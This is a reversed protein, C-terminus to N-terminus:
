QRQNDTPPWKGKKSLENVASVPDSPGLRMICSGSSSCCCSGRTPADLTAMFDFTGWDSRYLRYASWNTSSAVPVSHCGDMIAEASRGSNPRLLYDRDEHIHIATQCILSSTLFRCSYSAPRNVLFHWQFCVSQPASSKFSRGASKTASMFNVQWPLPTGSDPRFHKIKWLLSSIFLWSGFIILPCDFPIILVRAIFPAYHSNLPTHFAFSNERIRFCKGRSNRVGEAKEPWSDKTTNRLPGRLAGSNSEILWVIWLTQSGWQGPYDLTWDYISISVWQESKVGMLQGITQPGAEAQVRGTKQRGVWVISVKGIAGECVHGGDWSPTVHHGSPPQPLSHSAPPPWPFVRVGQM